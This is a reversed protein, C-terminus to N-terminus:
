LGFYEKFEKKIDFTIYASGSSPFEFEERELEPLGYNPDYDPDNEINFEDDYYYSEHRVHREYTAMDKFVIFTSGDFCCVGTPIWDLPNGEILDLIITNFLVSGECGSETPDVKLGIQDITEQLDREESVFKKIGDKLTYGMEGEPAKPDIYYM